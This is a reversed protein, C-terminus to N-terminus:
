EQMFIVRRYHDLPVALSADCRGTYTPGCPRSRPRILCTRQPTQFAPTARTGRRRREGTEAGSQTKRRRLWEGSGVKRGAWRGFGAPAQCDNTGMDVRGCAMSCFCTSSSLALDPPRCTLPPSLNDLPLSSLNPPPVWSTWQGREHTATPERM